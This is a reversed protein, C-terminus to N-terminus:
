LYKKLWNTSKDSFGCWAGANGSLVVLLEDDSDLHRALADRIQVATMQTVVIWVSDLHHWWTPFLEKIKDTLEKNARSYDAGERNLDYSIIYTQM